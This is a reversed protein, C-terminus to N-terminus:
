DPKHFALLKTGCYRTEGWHGEQLWYYIGYLNTMFLSEGLPHSPSNWGENSIIPMIKRGDMSMEGGYYRMVIQGPDTPHRYIEIGPTGTLVLQGDPALRRMETEHGDYFQFMAVRGLLYGNPLVICSARQNLITLALIVVYVVIASFLMKLAIVVMRMLLRLTARLSRIFFAATAAIM